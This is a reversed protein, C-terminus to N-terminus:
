QLGGCVTRPISVNRATHECNRLNLIAARWMGNETNFSTKPWYSDSSPSIAARWMGNETNFSTIHKIANELKTQNCGEVYRERYQFLKGQKAILFLDKYQLGGCVTRPISVSSLIFFRNCARSIAARWM